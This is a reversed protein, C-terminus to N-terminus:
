SRLKGNFRSLFHLFNSCMSREVTNDMKSLVCFYYFLGGGGRGRVSSKCLSHYQFLTVREPKCIEETQSLSM